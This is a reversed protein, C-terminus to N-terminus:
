TRTGKAERRCADSRLARGHTDEHLPQQEVACWPGTFLYPCPRDNRECRTKTCRIRVPRTLTLMAAERPAMSDRYRRLPYVDKRLASLVGTAVLARM